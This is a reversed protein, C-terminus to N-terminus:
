KGDGRILSIATDYAAYVAGPTTDRNKERRGELEKIVDAMLYERANPHIPCCSRSFYDNDLDKFLTTDLFWKTISCRPRDTGMGSNHHIYNHPCTSCNPKNM